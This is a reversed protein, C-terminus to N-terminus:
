RAATAGRRAKLVLQVHEYRTGRPLRELLARLRTPTGPGIVQEIREVLAAPMFWSADIECGSDAARLAHDLVVEETLGRIEAIEQPAFGAKLLRWTWYHNPRSPDRPAAGASTPTPEASEDVSTAADQQGVEDSASSTEAHPEDFDAEKADVGPRVNTRGAAQLIEMLAEGYQRVKGPGIGKVDLLEELSQPRAHALEELAANGLVIYAPVSQARCTAQRWARLRDLLDGDVDDSRADDDSAEVDSAPSEGKALGRLRHLKRWLAGSLRLAFTTERGSMVDNGADTLQLVPRFPEVETQELLGAILLADVLQVVDSQALANLLGFTSLKDLRNRAVPKSQAGCLMQALLQKGCGRRSRSIRAV